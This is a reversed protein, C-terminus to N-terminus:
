ASATLGFLDSLGLLAIASAVDAPVNQLSCQRGKEKAAAHAAVLLQIGIADIAEVDRFDLLLPGEGEDIARVMGAHVEAVTRIKLETGLTM